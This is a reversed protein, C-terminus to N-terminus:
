FFVYEHVKLGECLSKGGRRCADSGEGTGGRGGGRPGELWPSEYTCVGQVM